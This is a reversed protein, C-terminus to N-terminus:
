CRRKWTFCCLGLEYGKNQTSMIRKIYRELEKLIIKQSNNSYKMAMESLDCIKKWSLHKITVGIQPLHTDAYEESCESM